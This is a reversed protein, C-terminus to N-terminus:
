PPHHPVHLDTGPEVGLDFYTRGLAMRLGNSVLSLVVGLDPRARIRRWATDPDVTEVRRSIWDFDSGMM